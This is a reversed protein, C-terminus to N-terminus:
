EKPEPETKPDIEAMKRWEAGARDKEAQDGDALARLYKNCSAFVKEALANIPDPPQEYKPCLLDIVATKNQRLLGIFFEPAGAPTVKLSGPSATVTYGADSLMSVIDQPTIQEQTTQPCVTHQQTM